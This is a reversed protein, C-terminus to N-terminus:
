PLPEDGPLHFNLVLAGACAAREDGGPNAYFVQMMAPLCDDGSALIAHGYGPFLQVRGREMGAAARRAGTPPTQADHTGNVLLVPALIPQILRDSAATPPTKWFACIAQVQAAHLLPLAGFQTPIRAAVRRLDDLTYFPAEEACLVSAALGESSTDVQTAPADALLATVADLALTDLHAFLEAPQKFGLTRMLWSVTEIDNGAPDDADPLLPRWSTAGAVPTSQAVSRAARAAHIAEDASAPRTCGREPPLVACAAAFDEDYLATIFAPMVRSGDALQEVLLALIDAGSGYGVAAPAANYRDVVELLRAELAPYAANCAPTVSCDQTVRQIAGYLNLPEELLANAAVPLVGDLVMSRVLNPHRDALLAAIRTGYGTAYINLSGIGLVQALDAIDEVQAASTYGSLDRGEDLLRAYCARYGALLDANALRASSTPQADVVEPCNLSPSSYGAGRPDILIVDRNSRVPADYFLRRNSVGDSGPGDPLVLVPDMEPRGLSKLIAVFLSVGQSDPDTRNEPVELEGCIIEQNWPVIFPCEVEAFSTAYEIPPVAPLPTLLGSLPDAATVPLTATLPQTTTPVPTATLPVLVTVPAGAQARAAGPALIALTLACAASLVLPLLRHRRLNPM